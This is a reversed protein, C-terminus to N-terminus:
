PGGFVAILGVGLVTAAGGLVRIRGPTERLRVIALVLVFLVSSQRVAVVYSAPATELAKLILGYGVVGLSSAISAPLLNARAGDRVARFGRQALVIPSFLLTSGLTLLAYWTIARPVPSSWAGAALEAMAAKDALGYGVTALLTLAAYRVAPSNFARIDLSVGVQVLWMGAVVVAIGALGGASLQEGLVPVALLPLFAPTSRAIPYVLTLDGHEFARTLWYFYLAHAVSTFALWRWVPVTIEGFDVLPLVVAALTLNIGAQYFNFILPDDSGKISTSWFAHLLASALVLCIEISTM